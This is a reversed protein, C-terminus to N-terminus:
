PVTAGDGPISLTAIIHYRAIRFARTKVLQRRRSLHVPTTRRKVSSVARLVRCRAGRTMRAFAYMGRPRCLAHQERCGRKRPQSFISGPQILAAREEFCGSRPKRLILFSSLAM